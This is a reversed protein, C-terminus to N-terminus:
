PVDRLSDRLAARFAYSLEGAIPRYPPGREDQCMAQLEVMPVWRYVSWLASVALIVLLPGWLSRLVYRWLRREGSM